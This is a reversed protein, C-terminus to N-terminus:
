VSKDPDDQAQEELYAFLLPVKRRPPWPYRAAEEEFARFADEADPHLRSDLIVLLQLSQDKDMHLRLLERFASPWDPRGKAAATVPLLSFYLKPWLGGPEFRDNVIRCFRDYTADDFYGSLFRYSRAIRSGEVGACAVHAYRLPVSDFIREVVNRDTIREVYPMQETKNKLCSTNRSGTATPM